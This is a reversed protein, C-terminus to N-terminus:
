TQEWSIEKKDLWEGEPEPETHGLLIAGLKQSTIVSKAISRMNTFYMPRQGVLMNNINNWGYAEVVKKEDATLESRKTNDDVAKFINMIMVNAKHELDGGLYSKIKGPLPFRGAWIDPDEKLISIALALQKPDMDLEAAYMKVQPDTLECQLYEALAVLQMKIAQEKTM